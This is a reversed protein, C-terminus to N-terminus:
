KLWFLEFKDYKCGMIGNYIEKILVVVLLSFIFEIFRSRFFGQEGLM